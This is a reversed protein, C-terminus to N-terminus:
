KIKLLIERITTRNGLLRFYIFLNKHEIPSWQANWIKMRSQVKFLLKLNIFEILSQASNGEPWKAHIGSEVEMHILSIENAQRCTCFAFSRSHINALWPDRLFVWM